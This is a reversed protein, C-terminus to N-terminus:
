RVRHRLGARKSKGDALKRVQRKPIQCSPVGAKRPYGRMIQPVGGGRQRDASSGIRLRHLRHKPMLRGHESQVCVCVQEWVVKLEHRRSKVLGPLTRHLGSRVQQPSSCFLASIGIDPWPRQVARIRTPTAPNSGVVEEDRVSIRHVLVPRGTGNLQVSTIALPTSHGDYQDTPQRRAALRGKSGYAHTPPTTFYDSVRVLIGPAARQGSEYPRAGHEHVSRRNEVQLADGFFWREDTAM